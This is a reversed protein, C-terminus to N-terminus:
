FRAQVQSILSNRQVRPWGTKRSALVVLLRTRGGPLAKIM